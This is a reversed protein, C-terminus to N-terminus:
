LTNHSWFLHCIQSILLLFLNLCVEKKKKEVFDVFSVQKAQFRQSYITYLKSTTTVFIVDM